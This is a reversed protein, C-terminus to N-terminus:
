QTTEPNFGSAPGPQFPRGQLDPIRRFVGPPVPLTAGEESKPISWPLFADCYIKAAGRSQKDRRTLIERCDAEDEDIRTFESISRQLASFKTGLPHNSACVAFNPLTGLTM